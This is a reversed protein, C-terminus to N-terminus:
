PHPWGQDDLHEESVSLVVETPATPGRRFTGGYDEAAMVSSYPVYLDRALPRDLLFDNPRVEKVKGLSHGNISMVEMGVHVQDPGLTNAKLVEGHGSAEEESNSMRKEPLM